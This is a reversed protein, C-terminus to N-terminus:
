YFLFVATKECLEKNILLFFEKKRTDQEQLQMQEITIAFLGFCLFSLEHFFENNYRKAYAHYM